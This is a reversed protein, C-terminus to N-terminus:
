YNPWCSVPHVTEKPSWTYTLARNTLFFQHTNYYVVQGAFDWVLYTVDPQQGGKRVLWTHIDIGDTVVEGDVYPTRGDESILARMLSTKGAGGLGVIMLKTRYCAVKSDSLRSLYAITAQMGQKRIEWPPTKLSPCYKTSLMELKLHGVKDEITELKICDQISMHTLKKLKCLGAPLKRIAQANMILRELAFCGLIEKPFPDERFQDFIRDQEQDSYLSFIFGNLHGKRCFDKWQERTLQKPGSLKNPHPYNPGSLKLTRLADLQDFTPPLKNIPTKDLDLYELFRLTGLHEPLQQVLTATLVLSRLRRFQCIVDPIAVLPNESLDLTKLCASYCALHDEKLSKLGVRVLVLATLFGFMPTRVGDILCTLSEITEITEGCQIDLRLLRSATKVGPGILDQSSQPLKLHVHQLCLTYQGLSATEYLQTPDLVHVPCLNTCLDDPVNLERRKPAPAGKSKTALIRQILNKTLFNEHINVCRLALILLFTSLYIRAINKIGARLHVPDTDAPISPFCVQFEQYFIRDHYLENQLRICLSVLRDDDLLARFEEQDIGTPPENLPHSDSIKNWNLGPCTKYWAHGDLRQVMRRSAFYILSYDFDRPLILPWAQFFRNNKKGKQKWLERAQNIFDPYLGIPCIHDSNYPFSVLNANDKLLDKIWLKGSKISWIVGPNWNPGIGTKFVLMMGPRFYRETIIPFEDNEETEQQEEETPELQDEWCVPDNTVSDEPGDVNSVLLRLYLKNSPIVTRFVLTGNVRLSLVDRLVENSFEMLTGEDKKKNAVSELTEILIHVFDNKVIPDIKFEKGWCTIRGSCLDLLFPAEELPVMITAKKEPVFMVYCHQPKVVRLQIEDFITAYLKEKTQLVLFREGSPLQRPPLKLINGRLIDDLDCNIAEFCQDPFSPYIRTQMNWLSDIVEKRRSCVKCIKTGTLNIYEHKPFVFQRSILYRWEESSMQRAKCKQCNVNRTLDLAVEAPSFTNEESLETFCEGRCYYRLKHHLYPYDLITDEVITVYISLVFWIYERMVHESRQEHEYLSSTRAELDISSAGRTGHINHQVILEVCGIRLVFGTQWVALTDAIVSFESLGRSESTQKPRANSVVYQDLVEQLGSEVLPDQDLDIASLCPRKTAISNSRKYVGNRQPQKPHHICALLIQPFLNAPMGIRLKISFKVDVLGKDGEYYAYLPLFRTKLSALSKEEEALQTGKRISPEEPIKSWAMYVLENCDSAKVEKFMEQVFQQRRFFVTGRSLYWVRDGNTEFRDQDNLLRHLCNIRNVFWSYGTVVFQVETNPFCICSIMGSYLELAKFYMCAEELESPKYEDACLSSSPLPDDRFVRAESVFDLLDETKVIPAKTGCTEGFDDKAFLSMLKKLQSTNIEQPHWQYMHKLLTQVSGRIVRQLCDLQSQADNYFQLRKKRLAEQTRLASIEELCLWMGSVWLWVARGVKTKKSKKGMEKQDPILEKLRLKDVMDVMSKIVIPKERAEKVPDQSEKGMVLFASTLLTNLEQSSNTSSLLALDSKNLRNIAERADLIENQTYKLKTDRIKDTISEQSIIEYFPKHKSAVKNM